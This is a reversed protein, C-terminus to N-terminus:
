RTCSSPSRRPARAGPPDVAARLRRLRPRRLRLRARRLVDHERAFDVVRQMFELDVCTTTPNHPFSLVISARSAAVLVGVGRAPERLLGRRHRAAGRPRRRRRLDPRLHPDPLSPSPVLAADGPELLVWMLHSFGEKAGITNLVETDPDLEVGFQRRYLDAIAHRLKPIGRSSGLLPPQAPQAGGRRAERGRRRAVAPRPQRLRPRHRRRRSAAGRGEADDIITFVYPRCPTIRRFEM